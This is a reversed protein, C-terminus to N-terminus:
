KTKEYALLIGSLQNILDVAEMPTLFKKSFYANEIFSKETAIDGKDTINELKESASVPLEM